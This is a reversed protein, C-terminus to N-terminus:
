PTPAQAPESVEYGLARLQRLTEPDPAPAPEDTPPEPLFNESDPRRFATALAALRAVDEPHESAVDRTEYPDDRLDYLERSDPNRTDVLKFRDDVVAVRDIPCTIGPNHRHCKYRRLHQEAYAPRAELSRSPSRLVAALSRGDIRDPLPLELYELITPMVDVLQTPTDFSRPHVGPGRFALPVHIVRDHLSDGHGIRDWEGFQDGHDSFLVILTNETYPEIRELFAAFLADLSRIEARHLAELRRRDKPAPNDRRHPALIMAAQEETTFERDDEPTLRNAYALAEADRPLYPNHVEYTHVFLFYQQSPELAELWSAADDFTQDAWGKMRTAIHPNGEEYRDFGVSFGHSASVYGGETFAVTRYGADALTRVLSARLPRQGQSERVRHHLPYLASFLSTHSVLTNGYQAYARRFSASNALFADLNPSVDEPGQFSGLHDAGLTDLSILLVNPRPAGPLPGLLVISGWGPEIAPGDPTAEFRLSRDRGPPLPRVFDQWEPRPTLTRDDFPTWEADGERFGIEFRASGERAYVAASWEIREASDPVQVEFVRAEVLQRTGKAVKFPRTQVPPEVRAAREEGVRAVVGRTPLPEPGCGLM